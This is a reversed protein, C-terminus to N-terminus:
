KQKYKFPTKGFTKKFVNIFYSTDSFGSKMCSETVTYGQDLLKKAYSIRKAKLFEIPPIHIYKKFYRNLTSTSMNFHSAIEKISEIECFSTDIYDIINKIENPLSNLTKEFQSNKSLLVSIQFIISIKETNSLNKEEDNIEFLLSILKEKATGSFKIQHSFNENKCFNLLEDGCEKSFWVCFYENHTFNEPILVHVDDPRSLIVDGEKLPYITNNVFFSCDGSLHVYLEYNNHIHLDLDPDNEYRVKKNHYTYYLINKFTLPKEYSVYEFKNTNEM